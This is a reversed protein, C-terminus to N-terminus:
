RADDGPPATPRAAALADTLRALAIVAYLNDHDDDVMRRLEDLAERGRGTRMAADLSGTVLEDGDRDKVQDATYFWLPIAFYVGTPAQSGSKLGADGKINQGNLQGFAPAAGVSTLATLCLWFMAIRRLSPGM